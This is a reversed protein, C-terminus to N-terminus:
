LKESNSNSIRLDNEHINTIKKILDDVNKMVEKMM